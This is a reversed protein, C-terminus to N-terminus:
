IDIEEVQVARKQLLLLRYFKSFESLFPTLFELCGLPIAAKGLTTQCLSNGSTIRVQVDKRTLAFGVTINKVDDVYELIGRSKNFVLPFEPFRETWKQAVVEPEPKNIISNVVSVFDDALQEPTVDSDVREYVGDKRYFILDRHLILSPYEDLRQNAAEFGMIGIRPFKYNYYSPVRGALIDVTQAYKKLLYPFSRKTISKTHV